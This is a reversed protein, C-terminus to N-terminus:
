GAIRLREVISQKNTAYYMIYPVIIGLLFLLPLILVLPWVIFRYSMFWIQGCLPRVILLSCVLSLLISSAATLSVYLVGEYCLMKILQKRTMGISQLMAFERHRTLIGTLIANIFNLVGILGIIVALGGGILIATSQMSELGALATFKSEYNMTPEVIGTYEKMFDEIDEEREDWVNFAYGMAFTNGTLERYVDGPLFFTSGVWSGNTNTNPNAIVHGVVTMERVSDGVTLTLIDGVKHNFSHSEETNGYDDAKVGELIYNGSALKDEDFEGDVLKLRSFPFEDLGYIDTSFVGDPWKNMTQRSSESTYSGWTGYLRGGTEFGEQGEVAAIFSESLASDIGGYKYNFLDAHGILFDSDSFKELAKNVNVSQSLTFVTNTLVISLALSLIVLITRKKNRSLNSFAMRGPSGGKKSKKLKKGISQDNDTYGVAEVPSVKAAIKGPKNTSIFVTILAFFAAGVFILPNPSVSVASGAFNTQAILSPVLARGVFFGAILGLPIGMLSLILAQRRIIAHLQRGTTGITKLLGYFRIDRLVSILFINYIILYGTFVFLLLACILAIVTGMDLEMGTSMYAWNIGIKIYNPAGDETSFGSETLVRNLNEEINMSSEFKIYGTIAGTVSYDQYYTNNLEGLHTDVYARSAFIQGVNFGPDSEWWGSLVFDRTVQRGHVNLELSLSTGVELPVGLLELTKTDAIVENEKQPKHGTTPEAFTYKLGLDDCYWFETHRKILAQNDVSDSLMRCYAMEKILPHGYVADYEEDTVYKISAHGDGGTMTMSARQLSEVAGFGMTFLSTFLLATLAIAIVAIINRTKSASFSRDSLRHIVKKNKVRIM